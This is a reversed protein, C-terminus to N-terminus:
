LEDKSLLGKIWFKAIIYWDIIPRIKSYDISSPYDMSIPIEKFNVNKSNMIKGFSYYEYGYTFLEKKFYKKQFNSFLNTEFARYGCSPDSIDKKFVIKLFFSFIKILILRILPNNKKSAGSLFRSGSVFNYNKKLLNYMFIEIQSPKMKGNGALHIVYNFNYKKAYLYGIMLAYGVGKNSKLNLYDFNSDKIIQLSKDTSGNNVFIYTLNYHKYRNIKIQDILAILRNDENFVPIVCLTKM